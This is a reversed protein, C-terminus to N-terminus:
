TTDAVSAQHRYKHAVALLIDALEDVDHEAALFNRLYRLHELM